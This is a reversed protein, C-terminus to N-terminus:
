FRRWRADAGRLNGSRHFGDWADFVHMIQVNPCDLRPQDHEGTVHHDFLMVRCRLQELQNLVADGRLEADFMHGDLEFGLAAIGLVYVAVESLQCLLVVLGLGERVM